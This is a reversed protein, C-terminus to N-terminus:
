ERLRFRQDGVGGGFLPRHIQPLVHERPGVPHRELRGAALHRLRFRGILGGLLLQDQPDRLGVEVHQGRDVSQVGILCGELRDGALEILGVLAELDSEDGDGVHSSALAARSVAAAATIAALRVSAVESSWSCSIVPCFYSASALGPVSMGSLLGSGASWFRQTLMESSCFRDSIELRRAASM